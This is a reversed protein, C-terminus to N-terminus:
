KPRPINSESNCNQDSIHPVLQFNELMRFRLLNVGLMVGLMDPYGIGLQKMGQAFSTEPLPPPSENTDFIWGSGDEDVRLDIRGLGEMGLAQFAM